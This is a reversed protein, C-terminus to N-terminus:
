KQSNFAIENKESKGACEFAPCITVKNKKKKHNLRYTVHLFFFISKNERVSIDLERPFKSLKTVATILCL